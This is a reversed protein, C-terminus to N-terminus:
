EAFVGWSKRQSFVFSRSQRDIDLVCASICVYFFVAIQAEQRSLRDFKKREEEAIVFRENRDTSSGKKCYMIRRSKQQFVKGWRKPPRSRWRDRKKWAGLHEGEEHVYKRLSHVGGKLRSWLTSGLSCCRWKKQSQRELIKNYAKSYQTSDTYCRKRSGGDGATCSSLALFCKVRKRHYLALSRWVLGEVSREQEAPWSHAYAQLKFADALSYHHNHTCPFNRHEFVRCIGFNLRYPLRNVCSKVGWSHRQTTTSSFHM